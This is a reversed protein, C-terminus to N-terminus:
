CVRSLPGKARNFSKLYEELNKQKHRQETEQVEFELTQSRQVWCEATGDKGWLSPSVHWNDSHPFPLFFNHLAFWM